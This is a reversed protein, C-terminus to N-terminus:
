GSFLLPIFSEGFVGLLIQDMIEAEDTKHAELAALVFVINMQEM